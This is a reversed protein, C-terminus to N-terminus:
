NATIYPSQDFGQNIADVARAPPNSISNNLAGFNINNWIGTVARATGANKLDFMNVIVTGTSYTYYANWPYYYPYPWGWYAPTYWGNDADWWGSSANVITTKVVGIQMGLDPQDNHGVLTYGRAAMNDKVAQVLSQATQGTIISDTGTGGLNAVTDTIYYTKYTTFNATADKNTVVVFDSAQQDFDPTKRCSSLGTILSILGIILLLLRKM